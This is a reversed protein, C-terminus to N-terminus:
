RGAAAPGIFRSDRMWCSAGAGRQHRRHLAAPHEVLWVLEGARGAAIDAVRAEMGRWLRTM